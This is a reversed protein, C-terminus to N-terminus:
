SAMIDDGPGPHLLPGAEGVRRQRRSVCGTAPARGGSPPPRPPATPLEEEPPRRRSCRWLAACTGASVQGRSPGTCARWTSWGCSGPWRARSDATVAAADAARGRVAKAISEKGAEIAEVREKAFWQQDQGPGRRPPSPWCDRSPGAGEAKSTFIEVVEREGAQAGACWGRQVARRHLPQSETHVAYAFDVPTSGAAADGSAKPTFVFIERRCTTACRELFAPDAAERQWDLLQSGPCRTSRSARGSHTGKTEKYALARSAYEATRHMQPHPDAGRPSQTPRDRHHARSTCASGPSPSTTRSGAPMPQWLAHGRWPAYCDRVDDVM